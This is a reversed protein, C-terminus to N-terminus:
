LVLYLSISYFSSVFTFFYILYVTWHQRCIFSFTYFYFDTAVHDRGCLIHILFIFFVNEMLYFMFLLSIKCMDNCCLM